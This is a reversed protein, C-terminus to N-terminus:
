RSRTPRADRAALQQEREECAPETLKLRSAHGRTRDLYLSADSLEYATDDLADLVALVERDPTTPKGLADVDLADPDEALHGYRNRIARLRRQVESIQEELEGLEIYLDSPVPLIPARDTHHHTM